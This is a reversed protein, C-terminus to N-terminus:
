KDEKQAEMRLEEIHQMFQDLMSEHEGKVNDFAEFARVIDSNPDLADNVMHRFGDVAYDRLIGKPLNDELTKRVGYVISVCEMVLDSGSGSIRCECKDGDLYIM